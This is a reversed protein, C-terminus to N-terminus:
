HSSNLRTSKRDLGGLGPAPGGAAPGEGEGAPRVPEGAEACVDVDDAVLPFGLQAATPAAAGELPLMAGVLPMAPALQGLVQSFDTAPAEGAATTTAAAAASAPVPLGALLPDSSASASPIM